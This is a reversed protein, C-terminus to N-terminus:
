SGQPPLVASLCSVMTSFAESSAYRPQRRCLEELLLSYPGRPDSPQVCLQGSGGAEQASHLRCGQHIVVAILTLVLGQVARKNGTGELM